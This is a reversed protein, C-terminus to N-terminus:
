VKDWVLTVESGGGPQTEITLVAGVSEARERMISLGLQDPGAEREDFGRGDDRVRLVVQGEWGNEAQPDYPPTAGLYVSAEQAEAHKVVNQLAEQAVRYFTVHVEPPMPPVASIDRSVPLQVRSTVAEILQRLLDDLRTEVLATPRLELLMTRMEALAARTLQRLEQVGELAEEPNRQWVQPLVEAVLTASFLAQTVSDHLDRALRGREAAAAAEEIQDRLRANQVALAVQDGLTTALEVDDRSFARPEDRYLLLGGFAEDQIEVPVALLARHQAGGAQDERELGEGAVGRRGDLDRIVLAQRVTMAQGLAQRGLPVGTDLDQGALGYSARVALGGEGEDPGCIAVAESDLLRGGQEAIQTLVRDLPQNTNLAALVSALGDAIRRRREEDRRAEEAVQSAERAAREARKLESVDRASVALGIVQEDLVRPV